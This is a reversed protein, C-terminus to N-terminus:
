ASECRTDRCPPPRAAAWRDPASRAPPRSCGRTSRDAPPAGPSPGRTAGGCRLPSARRRPDRCRGCEDTTLDHEEEGSKQKTQRDITARTVHMPSIEGEFFGEQQARATRQQSALAYEDQAERSINYRKAVVEATDGMVMYLGPLKEVLFPNPDAAAGATQTISEVGGGIAAKAGGFIIQHAAMAVSQLGSSCFRNVTTAAVSVPLEARMAAIRAVNMGQPGEPYGCGIIVDEIEATDFGNVKGVASTICHAIMEDPRTMNFSGRFSKALPTRATAVVVAESM